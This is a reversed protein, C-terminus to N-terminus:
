LVIDPFHEIVGWATVYDFKEDEFPLKEADACIIQEPKKVKERASTKAIESIDIGWADIDRNKLSGLYDGAGCGLDLLVSGEDPRFIKNLFVIERGKANFVAESFTSSKEKARYYVEDYFNDPM